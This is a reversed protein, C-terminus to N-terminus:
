TPFIRSASATFDTADKSAKTSSIAWKMPVNSELLRQVLGYAKLNFVSNGNVTINQKDDMPIIISSPPLNELHAQNGSPLTDQARGPAIFTIALLLVAAAVRVCVSFDISRVTKM